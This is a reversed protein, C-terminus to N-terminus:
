IELGATWRQKVGDDAHYSQDFASDDFGSVRLKAEGDVVCQIADEDVLSVPEHVRALKSQPQNLKKLSGPRVATGAFGM